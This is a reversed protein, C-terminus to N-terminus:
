VLHLDCRIVQTKCVLQRSRRINAGLQGGDSKADVACGDNDVSGTPLSTWIWQRSQSLVVILWINERCQLTRMNRNNAVRGLLM